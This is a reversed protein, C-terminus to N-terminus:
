SAAGKITQSKMVMQILMRTFASSFKVEGPALNWLDNVGMVVVGARLPNYLVEPIVGGDLMYGEVTGLVLDIQNIIAEDANEKGLGVKCKELLQAHDLLATEEM